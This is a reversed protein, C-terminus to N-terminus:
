VVRDVEEEERGEEREREWDSVQECWEREKSSSRVVEEFDVVFMDEFDVVIMDQWAEGEEEKVRKSSKGLNKLNEGLNEEEEVAEVQM